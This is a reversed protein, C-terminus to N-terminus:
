SNETKNESKNETQNQDKNDEKSQDKSSDTNKDKSQDKSPREPLKSTDMNEPDFDEMDRSFNPPTMDGDKFKSPDFNQGGKKGGLILFGASAIIAGILMGIVLMFIKDKM